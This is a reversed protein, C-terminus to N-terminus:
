PKPPPPADAAVASKAAAAAERNGRIAAVAARADQTDAHDPGLSRERLALAQQANAEAEDYKGLNNQVAALSFRCSPLSPSNPDACAELCSLAGKLFTEAEAYRGQECLVQSMQASLVAVVAPQSGDQEALDLARRTCAEADPLNKERVARQAAEFYVHWRPARAGFIMVAGFAMLALGPWTPAGFAQGFFQLAAGVLLLGVAAYRRPGTM